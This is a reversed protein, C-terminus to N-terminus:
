KADYQGRHVTSSEVYDNIQDARDQHKDAWKKLHRRAYDLADLGRLHEM